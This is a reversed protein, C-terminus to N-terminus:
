FTQMGCVGGPGQHEPLPCQVRQTPQGPGRPHGAGGEGAARAAGCRDTGQRAPLIFLIAGLNSLTIFEGLIMNPKIVRCRNKDIYPTIGHKAQRASM